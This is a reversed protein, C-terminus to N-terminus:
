NIRQFNYHFEKMKSVNVEKIHLECIFKDILSSMSKSTEKSYNKFWDMQQKNLTFTYQAKNRM